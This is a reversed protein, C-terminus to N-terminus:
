WPSTTESSLGNWENETTEFSTPVVSYEKLPCASFETTAFAGSSMRNKLDKDLRDYNTINNKLTMQNYVAQYEKGDVSRVGFMVKIKNNPQLKIVSKLESFDGKFYNIINDLRVESDEPNSKMVWSNNKYDMVNPINLYNKIFDTLEAEGRYAERYDSDLNAPGNSYMPIEHAKAQEITAWATRGYKDIVQVKTKDKNYFFEERIFFTIKSNLDIGSKEEDTHIIFDIRVQKINTDKVVGVYEPDKDIERNYIKELEAKTPNVATVFVPAIGIYKKVEVGETSETGKAIAM